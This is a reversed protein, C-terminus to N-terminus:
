STTPILDPHISALLRKRMTMAQDLAEAGEGNVEFFRKAKGGREATPEGLYSRVYGKHELRDLTTYVAGLSTNRHTETELLQRIKVGYAGGQLSLIALLVLEEFEGLYMHETHNRAM